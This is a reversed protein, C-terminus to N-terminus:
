KGVCFRSFVENVISETTREGTLTLLEAIADDLSVGVADLTMGMEIAEVAEILGNKANQACMRQRETALMAATPDFSDLNLVRKVADSLEALGTGSIASTHVMETIYQKITNELADCNETLDSKNIVAIATKHKCAELLEMDDQNLAQAADFVAIILQATNLRAKARDVGIAEVPDDTNRLGATDSLRLIIDELNVTEEVIDRTTGPIDTVISRDCGSLMNMLTSKGVNPRGAIVTDVGERMLRGSDFRALLKDLRDIAQQMTLKINDISLQPIDDEPYDIWAAIHAAAAVLDQKISSIERWLAGEKAAMAATATQKGQAGILDMVAECSTLDMKGNMFARQTFEGAAAPKAGASIAASLLRRTIYIGGHCSLEVVDEGTYSKPARFVLAVAEDFRGDKDHVHGYMATYGEAKTIDKNGLPEFVKAAIEAANNGSIRVIGIGGAAIPTSIAAITHENM